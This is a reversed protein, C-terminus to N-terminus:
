ALVIVLIGEIYHHLGQLALKVVIEILARNLNHYLAKNLSHNLHRLQPKDLENLKLLKNHESLLPM